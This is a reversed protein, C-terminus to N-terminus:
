DSPHAAPSRLPQSRRHVEFSPARLIAVRLSLLGSLRGACSPSSFHGFGELFDGDFAELAPVGTNQRGSGKCVESNLWLGNRHCAWSQPLPRFALRSRCPSYERGAGVYQADALASQSARVRHNVQNPQRHQESGRRFPVLARQSPPGGCRRAPAATLRRYILRLGRLDQASEDTAFNAKYIRGASSAHRQRGRQGCGARSLDCGHVRSITLGVRQAPGKTAKDTADLVNTRNSFPYAYTFDIGHSRARLM